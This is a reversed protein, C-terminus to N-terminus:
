FILSIYVYEFILSEVIYIYLNCLPSKDEYLEIKLVLVFKCIITIYIYIYLDVTIANSSDNRLDKGFFM